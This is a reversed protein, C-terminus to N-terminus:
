IEKIQIGYLAYVLKKKLKYVDTKVGKVDEYEIRGDPYTVQFDAIYDCVKFKGILVPLRRQPVWGKIKGARLLLDLEGARGAEKASDYWRGSYFTRRNNYKSRRTLSTRMPTTQM